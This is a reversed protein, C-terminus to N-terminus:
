LKWIRVESYIETVGSPSTNIGMGAANAASVWMRLELTTQASLTIEGEIPQLCFGSGSSSTFCSPSYLLYTSHTYDYLAARSYLGIYVPVYARIYYRGPPLTFRNGSLSAGPIYIKVAANLDRTQWTTASTSGGSTGAPKEDRFYAYIGIANNTVNDLASNAKGALGAMYASWDFVSPANQANAVVVFWRLRM